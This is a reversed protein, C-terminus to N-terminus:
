QQCGARPCWEGAPDPVMVTGCDCRTLPPPPEPLEALQTDAPAATVSMATAARAWADNVQYCTACAASPHAPADCHACQGARDTPGACIRCTM